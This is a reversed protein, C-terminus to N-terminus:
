HLPKSTLWTALYGQQRGLPWAAPCGPLRVAPCGPQLAAPHSFWLEASPTM